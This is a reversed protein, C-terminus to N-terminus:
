PVPTTFLIRLSSGEQLVGLKFTGTWTVVFIDQQGLGWRGVGAPESCGGDRM